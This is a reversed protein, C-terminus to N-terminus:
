IGIDLTAAHALMAHADDALVLRANLLHGVAHQYRELWTERNRYLIRVKEVPFPTTRGALSALGADPSVGVHTGLPAELDPWRIGGLANGHVDRPLEAPNGIKALRPQRPPPTGERLWRHVAHIAARIAPAYSVQCAESMGAEYLKAMTLSSLAGFHGTGAIEWYRRLETDPQRNPYSVEAEYESNVILIPTALDDRLLYRGWSLLHVTNSAVEPLSVPATSPDLACPCGAYGMLLFADVGRSLPHVGNIYAALRSASQSWGVAILREVPLGDMPDAAARKPREPGVLEAAQRFIDYSFGDGPHDLAQRRSAPTQAAVGVLAFGDSVLQAALSDEVVFDQGLSVNNWVILATGNFAARRKPRIVLLRSTFDATAMPEASWCGDIAYETAGNALRFQTATGDFTVEEVFGAANAVVREM